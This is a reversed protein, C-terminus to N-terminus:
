RRYPVNVYEEDESTLEENMPRAAPQQPQFNAYDTNQDMYAEIAKHLWTYQDFSQVLQSRGQRIQKVANFVNVEQDVKLKDLVYSLAVYV